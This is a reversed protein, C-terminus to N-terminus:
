QENKGTHQARELWEDLAISVACCAMATRGDPLTTDNPEGYGEDWESHCSDCCAPCSEGIM